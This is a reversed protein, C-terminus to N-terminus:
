RQKIRVAGPPPAGFPVAQPAAQPIFQAAGQIPQEPYNAPLENQPQRDKIFEFKVAGLQRAASPSTPIIIQDNLDKNFGVVYQNVTRIANSLLRGPNAEFAAKVLKETFDEQGDKDLSTFKNLLITPNTVQKGTLQAFAPTNLLDSYQVLLEGVQVAEPGIISQLPKLLSQRMFRTAEEPDVDMLNQAEIIINYPAVVRKQRERLGGDWNKEASKYQPSEELRKQQPLNFDIQDKLNSIANRTETSGIGYVSEIKRKGDNLAKQRAQEVLRFRAEIRDGEYPLAAIQDAITMPGQQRPQQQPAMEQPMGAPAPMAGLQAQQAQQTAPTAARRVPPNALVVKPPAQKEVFYKQHEKQSPIGYQNQESYPGMVPALLDRNEEIYKYYAPDFNPASAEQMITAAEPTPMGTKAELGGYRVPRGFVSFPSEGHLRKGIDELIAQREFEEEESLQGANAQLDYKEKAQQLSLRRQEALLEEQTPNGTTKIAQLIAPAGGSGGLTMQLNKKTGSVTQAIENYLNELYPSDPYYKSRPEVLSGERYLRDLYAQDIFPLNEPM